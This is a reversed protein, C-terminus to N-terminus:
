ECIVWNETRLPNITAREEDYFGIFNFGGFAAAYQDQRGGMFGCDEREIKFALRALTYDDIPLNLLEM